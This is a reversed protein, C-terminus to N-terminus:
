GTIANRYHHLETNCYCSRLEAPERRYTFATREIHLLPMATPLHLVAAM